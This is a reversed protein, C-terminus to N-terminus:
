SALEVFFSARHADTFKTETLYVNKYAHKSFFRRATRIFQGRDLLCHFFLFNHCWSNM